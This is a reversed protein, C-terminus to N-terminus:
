EGYPWRTLDNRKLRRRILEKCYDILEHDLSDWPMPQRAQIDSFPVDWQVPDQHTLGCETGYFLVPPQPLSFQFKLARKLKDRNQGADHLFRNMDHNDIFSPLFYNEPFRQYHHSMQLALKHEFQDPNEKWAIFETIRHRFYFDLVGDFEGIYERQIDWPKFKLLWRLYKHKIRITKLMNPGIGELWAEGILVAEPNLSKIEKRFAKWFDHSPGIAHDLRFGDAGLSIWQKAAGIIHKRADPFDLNIKPLDHFHLFSLYNNNFPTFYFWKRYNDKKNRLAKQFFPHQYSCHNPVFDLIVRINKKHAKDIVRKLDNQSGFRRDTAYYDTIHYGHYSTTRYVPSLWITNIGLETLYDLKDAIGILNGGLFVPKEPNIEQNYGAFRDVLIHYGIADRFWM